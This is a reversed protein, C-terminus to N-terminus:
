KEPDESESLMQEWHSGQSFEVELPVTNAFDWEPSTMIQEVTTKLHPLEEKDTSFLISDHIQGLILSKWHQKKRLVNIRNLAHQLLHYSTGQIPTNIIETRRLPGNRRFGLFMEIYNKEYYKQIYQDQWEKIYHFKSWFQDEVAKVKDESLRISPAISKYYSGYFEPFVFKNKAQYREEKSVEEIPKDFLLAAQERHMDKGKKIYDVLVPDKTYMAMVRIEAGAYDV